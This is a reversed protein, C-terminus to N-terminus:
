RYVDPDTFGDTPARSQFHRLLTLTPSLSTASMDRAEPPRQLRPTTISFTATITM